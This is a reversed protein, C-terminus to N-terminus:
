EFEGEPDREGSRGARGRGRRPHPQPIPEGDDGMRRGAELWASGVKTNQRLPKGRRPKALRIAIVLVVVMSVGILGVVMMWELVASKQATRAISAPDSMRGITEAATEAATALLTLPVSSPLPLSTDPHRPPSSSPVSPCLSLPVSPCLSPPGFSLQDRGQDESREGKKEAYWIRKM